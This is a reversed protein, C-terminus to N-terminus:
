QPNIENNPCSLEENVVRHRADSIFINRGKPVYVGNSRLHDRLECRIDSDISRFDYPSYSRFDDAFIRSSKKMKGLKKM